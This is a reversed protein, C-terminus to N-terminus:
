IKLILFIEIAFIFLLGLHVLYGQLCIPYGLALYEGFKGRITIISKSTSRKFWQERKEKLLFRVLITTLLLTVFCILIKIPTVTLDTM